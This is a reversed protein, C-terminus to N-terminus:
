GKVSGGWLGIYNTTARTAAICNETQLIQGVLQSQFAPPLNRILVLLKCIYVYITTHLRGMNADKGADIYRRRKSQRVVFHAM